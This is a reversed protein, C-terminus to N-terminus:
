HLGGHHMSPMRGSCVKGAVHSLHTSGQCTGHPADGCLACGPWLESRVLQTFEESPPGCGCLAKFVTSFPSGTARLRVCGFAASRLRVCGIIKWAVMCRYMSRLRTRLHCPTCTYQNNHTTSYMYQVGYMYMSNWQLDLDLVFSAGDRRTLVFTAGARTEGHYLRGSPRTNYRYM